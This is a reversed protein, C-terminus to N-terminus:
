GLELRAIKLLKCLHLYMKTLTVRQFALQHRTRPGCVSLSSAAASTVAALAPAGQLEAILSAPLLGVLLIDALHSQM